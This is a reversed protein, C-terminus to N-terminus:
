KNLETITAKNDKISATCPQNDIIMIATNGIENPEPLNFSYGYIKDDNPNEIEDPWEYIVVANEVEILQKSAEYERLDISYQIDYFHGIGNGSDSVHSYYQIHGKDPKKLKYYEFYVKNDIGIIIKGSKITKNYM